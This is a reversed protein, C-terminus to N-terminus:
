QAAAELEAVRARAAALADEDKLLKKAQKNATKYAKDIARKHGTELKPYISTAAALATEYDPDGYFESHMYVSMDKLSNFSIESSARIAEWGGIAMVAGTEKAKSKLAGSLFGGFPVKAALMQSGKDAAMSAAESGVQATLAKSGWETLEGDVTYPFLYKGSNDELPEPVDLDIVQEEILAQVEKYKDMVQTVQGLIVQAKVIAGMDIAQAALSACISLM